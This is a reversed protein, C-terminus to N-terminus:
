ISGGQGKRDVEVNMQNSRKRMTWIPHNFASFLLHEVRCIVVSNSKICIRIYMCVYIYIYIYIYIVHIGLHCVITYFSCVSISTFEYIGIRKSYILAKPAVIFVCLFLSSLLHLFFLLLSSFPIHHYRYRWAVVVYWYFLLLNYVYILFLCKDTIRALQFSPM